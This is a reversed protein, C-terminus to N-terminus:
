KAPAPVKADEEAIRAIASRKFWVKTNSSEDIKVLVRDPRADVVKGIIGGITEVEDGRKMAELMQQRQRDQKRKPMIMLFYMVIIGLFLLPMPGHTLTYIASGGGTPQAAASQGGVAQTAQALFEIM